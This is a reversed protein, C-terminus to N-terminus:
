VKVTITPPNPNDATKDYIYITSSFWRSWRGSSPSQLNTIEFTYSGSKPNWDSFTAEGRRNTLLYETSTRTKHGSPVTYSAEILVNRVTKGNDDKVTMDFHLTRGQRSYSGTLSDVHITTYYPNIILDVTIQYGTRIDRITVPYTGALIGTSEGNSDILANRSIGWTVTTCGQINSNACYDLNRFWRGWRGTNSPAPIDVYQPNDDYGNNRWSNSSTGTYLTFATTNLGTIEITANNPVDLLNWIDFTVRKTDSCYPNGNFTITNFNQDQNFWNPFSFCNSRQGRGGWFGRGSFGTNELTIRITPASFYLEFPIFDMGSISLIASYDQITTQIGVASLNYKTIPITVNVCAAGITCATNADPIIVQDSSPITITQSAYQPDIYFVSTNTDFQLTKQYSSDTSGYNWVAGTINVSAEDNFDAGFYVSTYSDSAYSDVAGTNYPIFKFVPTDSKMTFVTTNFVTPDSGDTRMVTFSAFAKTGSDLQSGPDTPNTYFTVSTSERGNLLQYSSNYSVAWNVPQYTNNQAKDAYLQTNGLDLIIQEYLPNTVQINFSDIKNDATKYNTITNTFSTPNTYDLALPTKQNLYTTTVGYLVAGSFVTLGILLITAIIPSTGKRRKIKKFRFKNYYNM